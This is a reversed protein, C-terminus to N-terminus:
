HGGDGGDGGHGGDSDDHGGNHSDNHHDQDYGGGIDWDGRRRSPPPRRLTLVALTVIVAGIGFMLFREVPDDHIQVGIALLALAVAVPGAVTWRRVKYREWRTKGKM